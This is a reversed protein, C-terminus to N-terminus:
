DPGGAALSGAENRDPCKAKVLTADPEQSEEAGLGPEPGRHPLEGARPWPGRARGKTRRCGLCDGITTTWPADNTRRDDHRAAHSSVIISTMRKQFSGSYRARM